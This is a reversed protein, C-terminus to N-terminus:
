GEFSGRVLELVKPVMASHTFRERVRRAILESWGRRWEPSEVAREVLRELGEASVFTTEGIDGLLHQTAEAASDAGPDEGAEARALFAARRAEPIWCFPDHELGLLQQIRTYRAWEPHDIAFHGGWRNQPNCVPPAERLSALRHARTRLPMLAEYILRCLPLGGSLACEMVRQHALTNISAHLHVAAGQYAARLEEGHSLEGRAFRGLTPHAAWGRGYVHLRWGRRDAMEAAWALTQHRLVRDALALCYHRFVTTHTAADPERGLFRRVAEASASELRAHVVRRCPDGALEQVLPRLSELAKQIPAGRGAEDILREHMREPTESHHSVLAIECRHRALLAPDAPGPHFKVASAVVPMRLTRERPYAFKTALDEGVHGVLFDRATQARGVAADYQHPMADQIWCVFPLEPPFWGGIHRRTYNVMVVLDPELRDIARLYSVSSFRLSDDDEILLEARYGAACLAAALDRASHQVYTTYRCTPLLVRLPAGSGPAMAEAYRRKWWSDDRGRYAAAVRSELRQHEAVQAREAAGAIEPVAPSLRTRLSRQPIYAGSIQGAMRAALDAALREAAGPGVFVATRAEGLVGRLDAQALGDLFELPDAQVVLLRPWFGEKERPAAEAIKLLLWPPDIGEVTLSSPRPGSLHQQVFAAAASRQDGLGLWAEGRRRVINGDAARFWEWGRAAAAWGALHGRLDQGRASLADLNASCLAALSGPDIRDDPLGAVAIALGRAAPDAAVEPPLLEIQERALTGLGLRALNAALLVRLGADGPALRMAQLGLPVFEWPRGAQGARVIDDRTLRRSAPASPAATTM